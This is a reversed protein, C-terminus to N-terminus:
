AVGHLRPAQFSFFLLFHPSIYDATAKQGLPEFILERGTTSGRIPALSTNLTQKSLRNDRNKNRPNEQSTDQNHYENTAHIQISSFKVRYPTYCACMHISQTPLRRTYLVDFAQVMSATRLPSTHGGRPPAPFPSQVNSPNRSSPRKLSGLSFVDKKRVNAGCEYVM